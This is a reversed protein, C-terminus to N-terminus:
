VSPPAHPLPEPPPPPRCTGFRGTRRRLRRGFPLTSTASASTTARAAPANANRESRLDPPWAVASEIDKGVPWVYVYASVMLMSPVMVAPVWDPGSLPVIESVRDHFARLTSALPTAVTSSVALLMEPLKLPWGT